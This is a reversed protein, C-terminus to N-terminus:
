QVATVPETSRYAFRRTVGPYAIGDVEAYPYVFYNLPEGQMGPLVLNRGVTFLVRNQDHAGFFYDRLAPNKNGESADVPM